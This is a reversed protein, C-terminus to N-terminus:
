PYLYVRQTSMVDPTSFQVLTSTGIQPIFNVRVNEGENIPRESLFNVEIVDGRVFVGPQSNDGTQMYNVAFESTTGNVATENYTFSQSTNSTAVSLTASDLQIPDSGPALRMVMTFDDVDGNSGDIASVELALANTSIQGTAQTGTSLAQQQLSGATQILVGAAVAAVLLLSIFIILTGVGM